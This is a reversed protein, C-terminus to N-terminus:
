YFTALFSISIKFLDIKESVGALFSIPASKSTPTARPNNVVRVKNARRMKANTLTWDRLLPFLLMLMLPFPFPFPVPFPLWGVWCCCGDSSGFPDRVKREAEGDLESSGSTMGICIDFNLLSMFLYYFLVDSSFYNYQLYLM